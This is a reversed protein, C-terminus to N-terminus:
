KNTKTQSITNLKTSFDFVFSYTKIHNPEYICNEPKSTTKKLTPNWAFVTKQLWLNQVSTNWCLTQTGPLVTNTGSTLALARTSCSACVRPTNRNTKARTPVRFQQWKEKQLKHLQAKGRADCKEPCAFSVMQSLGGTCVLFVEGRKHMSSLLRM